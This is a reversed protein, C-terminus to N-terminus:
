KPTVPLLLASVVDEVKELSLIARIISDAVGDSIKYASYPVCKKFKGVLEQETLPNNPHGKMYISEKSFKRGDKLTIHVRAALNPLSKDESATIQTMLERVERRKMAEPTYSDLFIKKDYAAIAVAYPLSFQCEAVTQPNWKLEKPNSIQWVPPSADIHISAIDGAEFQHEKMQDLLADISNHTEGCSPYNKMVVNPMEWKEGLDRTIAEPHTEWTAMGLYGRQGLLVEDRPGTIGRRALLCANIADQCIFGHHVRAILRAPSFMALDHPQTMTRAIGEANELEELNLGILKGVATVAGFIAHGEGRGM